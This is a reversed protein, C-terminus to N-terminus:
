PAKKVTWDISLKVDDGTKITGVAIAPAPPEVKFDTMKVAVKGSFKIKDGDVKMEVPMAIERAVGAVTLNGKTDFKLVGDKAEVFAMETLSYKIQKNTEELLKEYMIGDMANSYPKGDKMSKLARVPMFVEVKAEVKGPKAKAADLPFEPGVEMQGGVIKSEVTWDHITSTGEMKILNGTGPQTKYKAWGEAGMVTAGALALLAVAGMLKQMAKM